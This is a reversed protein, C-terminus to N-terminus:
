QLAALRARADRLSPDQELAKRYYAKAQDIKGQQEFVSGLNYSM